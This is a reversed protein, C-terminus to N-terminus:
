TYAITRNRGSNKASYLAKDAMQILQKFRKSDDPYSAVGFSVTINLSSDDNISFPSGEIAKRLKEAVKISDTKTTDPLIIIFEEGGFRVVLDSDRLMSRLSNAIHKLVKDGTEHGYEDNIRKFHDIDCMLIGVTKQHRKAQQLIFDITTNLFRRNYLGTLEDKLSQEKLLEMQFKTQLFPQSEELYQLLKAPSRFAERNSIKITYGRNSEVGIPMCIYHTNRSELHCPNEFSSLFRNRAAAPCTCGNSHNLCCPPPEKDSFSVLRCSSIGFHQKLFSCTFDLAEKFTGKEKLKERFDQLQKIQSLLGNFERSLRGIEDDTNIEITKTLDIRGKKLQKIQTTIDQITRTLNNITQLTSLLMLLINAIGTAMLSRQLKSANQKATNEIDEAYYSVSILWKLHDVIEFIAIKKKAKNDKTGEPWNYTVIGNKKKLMEDFFAINKERRIQEISMGEDEPHVVITEKYLDIAYVYGNKGIKMSKLFDKLQKLQETINIGVFYAGITTKNEIIPEYYTLYDKNFMSARGLYPKGELLPKRAPHNKGLVTNIALDGTHTKLSTAVRKFDDNERKFITAVATEIVSSFRIPAEPNDFVDGKIYSKFVSMDQKLTDITTEVLSRSIKGIIEAQTFAMENFYESTEKRVKKPISIFTSYSLFLSPQVFTNLLIKEKLSRKAM